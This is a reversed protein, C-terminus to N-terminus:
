QAYRPGDAETIWNALQEAFQELTHARIRTLAYLEDSALDFRALAEGPNCLLVRRFGDDVLATGLVQSLAAHVM